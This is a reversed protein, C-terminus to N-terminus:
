VAAAHMATVRGSALLRGQQWVEFLYQAGREDALLRHAHIDMRGGSLDVYEVMLRLDRLSVLRGERGGTEGLLAGHVAMAQAGYEALHVAHLGAPSRLPHEEPTHREAVAHIVSADWEVVADILAMAGAHPIRAAWAAQTLM